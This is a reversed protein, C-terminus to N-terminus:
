LSSYTFRCIHTSWMFRVARADLLQRQARSGFSSCVSRSLRFPRLPSFSARQAPMTVFSACTAHFSRWYVALLVFMAPHDPLLLAGMGPTSTRRCSRSSFSHYISRARITEKARKTPGLLGLGFPSLIISIIIAIAKYKPLVARHGAHLSHARARRSRVLQLKASQGDLQRFLRPQRCVSALRPHRLREDHVGRRWHLRVFRGSLGPLPPRLCCLIM